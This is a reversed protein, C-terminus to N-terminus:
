GMSRNPKVLFLVAAFSCHDFSRVTTHVAMEAFSCPAVGFFHGSIDLGTRQYNAGSGRQPIELMSSRM